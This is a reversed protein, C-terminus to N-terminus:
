ATANIKGSSVFDIHATILWNIAGYAKPEFLKVTKQFFNREIIKAVENRHNRRPMAPKIRNGVKIGMKKVFVYESEIRHVPM